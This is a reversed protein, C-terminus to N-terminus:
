SQKRPHIGAIFRFIEDEPVGMSYISVNEGDQRWVASSANEYQHLVVEVRKGSVTVVRAAPIALWRIENCTVYTADLFPSGPAGTIAAAIAPPGCRGAFTLTTSVGPPRWNAALAVHPPPAVRTSNNALGIGIGFGAALGLVGLLLWPVFHRTYGAM